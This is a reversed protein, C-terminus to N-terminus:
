HISNANVENKNTYFTKLEDVIYDLKETFLSNAVMRDKRKTIMLDLKKLIDQTDLQGEGWEIQLKGDVVNESKISLQFSLVLKIMIQDQEPIDALTKNLQTMGEEDLLEEVTPIGHGDDEKTVNNTFNISEKSYLDEFFDDVVSDEQKKIDAVSTNKYIDLFKGM